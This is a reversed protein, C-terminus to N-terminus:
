FTSDYEDSLETNEQWLTGEHFSDPIMLLVKGLSFFFLWALIISILCKVLILPVKLSFRQSSKQHSLEKLCHSCIVRGHHETVCERCYYRGCQPCRAAAERTSHNFCRQAALDSM